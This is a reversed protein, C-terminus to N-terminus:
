LDEQAPTPQRVVPRSARTPSWRLGGAAAPRLASLYGLLATTRRVGAPAVNWCGGFDSSAYEVSLGLPHALFPGDNGGHQGQDGITMVAAKPDIRRHLAEVVRLKSSSRGIVDVTHGSSLVDVGCPTGVLAELVFRKLMGDPMPVASRVTLQTPRLRFEAVRALLPSGTLVAHARAVEADPPCPPPDPEDLRLIVGGNYMGVTVRPWVPEPTVARLADLVSDGRGTAIGVEAGQEVLRALAEGVASGPAGYREDAECLTGDYDFAVAGIRARQVEHVWARCRSRWDDRVPEAAGAWVAESVKRRIWLDERSGAEASVRQAKTIGAHYLTRGFAPVRPRGPDLGDAAAVAGALRIVRVLLDLAGAEAALPSLLSTRRVYAPLVELTSELAGAEEATALGVISTDSARRHLGHHRGHAFNRPDIVTVAGLGAEGWKSEMDAAAATSWATALTVVSRSRVSEVCEETAAGDAEDLAPLTDPLRVGYGRALITCTLVLSNTALFGDKGAPGSFESVTAHRFRALLDRLATGTRACLGLLEPYEATVAHRAAALIDPNSGGASLLLVGAGQLAPLQVFELPTLVRAPLRAHTEHLRAAFHCASVSGGSGIVLLPRARLAAVRPIFDAVDATLAWEYTAGLRSLEERYPRGM